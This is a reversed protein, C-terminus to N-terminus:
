KGSRTNVFRIEDLVGAEQKRSTPTKEDFLNGILM